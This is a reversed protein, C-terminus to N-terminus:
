ESYDLDMNFKLSQGTPIVPGSWSYIVSDGSGREIKPAGWPDTTIKYDCLTIIILGCRRLPQRSFIIHFDNNDDFSEVWRAAQAPGPAAMLGLGMMAALLAASLRAGLRWGPRSKLTRLM